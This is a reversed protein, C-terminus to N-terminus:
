IQLCNIEIRNMKLIYEQYKLISCLCYLHFIKSIKHNNKKLIQVLYILISDKLFYYSHIIELRHFYYIKSEKVLLYCIHSFYNKIHHFFVFSALVKLEVLFIYRSKDEINLPHLDKYNRGSIDLHFIISTLLRLSKNQSQEEKSDKGSIELKFVSLTWFILLKNEPHQEKNDRGSIDFHFVIFM